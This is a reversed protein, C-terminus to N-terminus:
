PNVRTTTTTANKHICALPLGDPAMSALSPLTGGQALPPLPPPLVAYVVVVIVVVVVVVVIVVVVVVVLVVVFEEEM